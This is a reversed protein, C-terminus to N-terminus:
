NSSNITNKRVYSAKTFGTLLILSYALLLWSAFYRDVDASLNPFINDFYFLVVVDILMGPIVICIAALLRETGQIKKMSYIPITSIWILPILLIYAGIMLFPEELTFFYQGVFRFAASALLWIGFGWCLFFPM